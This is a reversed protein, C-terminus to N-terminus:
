QHSGQTLQAIELPQLAALTAKYNIVEADNLRRFTDVVFSDFGVFGSQGTALLAPADNYLDPDKQIDLYQALTRQIGSTTVNLKAAMSAVGSPDHAQVSTLLEPIRTCGSQLAQRSTPDLVQASMREIERVSSLVKAVRRRADAAYTDVEPDRPFALRLGLAVIVGVVAGVLAAALPSGSPRSLALFLLGAVPFTVLGAIWPVDSRQM